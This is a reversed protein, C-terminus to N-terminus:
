KGPGPVLVQKLYKLQVDRQEVTVKIERLDGKGKTSPPATFTLLYQNHLVAQLQQLYPAFSVPATIGQFFGYGGSGSTLQELNSQAYQGRISEGFRQSTGTYITHVVVGAKQVDEVAAAVYPSDPGQDLRDVGSAILLVNRAGGTAPWHKNVLESLSIYVSPSNGATVGVPLRLAKSVANHDTSFPAATQVTGNAAYFVGVSTNKPQANIFAAMDRLQPGVESQSASNDIVLALQVGARATQAPVLRVLPLRAKGSSITVDQKTIPPPASFDKGLVTLTTTVPVGASNPPAQAKSPIRVFLLVLPIAVCFRFNRM